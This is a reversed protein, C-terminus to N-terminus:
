VGRNKLSKKKTELLKDLAEKVDLLHTPKKIVVDIGSCDLPPNGTFMVAPISPYQLKIQKVMEAGSMGPMSNDTLILHHIKPDFRLLADEASPSPDVAYGFYDLFWKILVRSDHNDDVLLVTSAHPTTPREVFQNDFNKSINKM